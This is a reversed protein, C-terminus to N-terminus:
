IGGRAGALCAATLQEALTMAPRVSELDYGIPPRGDDITQLFLRAQAYFGPKFRADFEDPAITRPEAVGRELVACSELPAFVYRRDPTCVNVRWRGPSGWSSCFNALAGRESVGSLTMYWDLPGTGHTALIQPSPVSGALYTLLDLGHISNSFVWRSIQQDSFGKRRLHAPDESWDILVARVAAPGGADAVARNVVSYHRRNLAVMQPAQFEAVLGCLEDFEALSTGTPKELLTPIRRPALAKAVPFIQDFTPCCIVGDPRERDLMEDLSAYTAPIGGERQAQERRQPSKNVSAVIECGLARFVEMHKPAIGGYGVIALRKM